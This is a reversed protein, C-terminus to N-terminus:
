AMEGKLWHENNDFRKILTCVKNQKLDSGDPANLVGTGAVFSVIGLGINFFETQFNGDLTDDITITIPTASNLWIPSINKHANTLTTSTTIEIQGGYADVKEKYTDTFDNTSLGKGEVKDVKADLSEQLQDIESILHKEPHVYNQLSNLKNLLTTTFDETSLQKGVVKVVRNDLATQLGNIFSIEKSTPLAPINLVGGDSFAINTGGNEDADISTIIIGEDKHYFSALINEYKQKIVPDDCTMYGLLAVLTQKTGAM